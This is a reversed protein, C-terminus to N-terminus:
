FVDAPLKSRMHANALALAEEPLKAEPHSFWSRHNGACVRLDLLCEFFVGCVASDLRRRCKTTPRLESEVAHSWTGCTPEVQLLPVPERAGDWECPCLTSRHREALPRFTQKEAPLLCTQGSNRKAKESTAAFFPIGHLCVPRAVRPCRSIDGHEGGCSSAVPIRGATENRIDVMTYDRNSDWRAGRSISVCAKCVYGISGRASFRRGIRLFVTRSKPLLSRHVEFIIHLISSM